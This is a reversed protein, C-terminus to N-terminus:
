NSEFLDLQIRSLSEGRLMKVEIIEKIALSFIQNVLSCVREDKKKICDNLYERYKEVSEEKAEVVFQAKTKRDQISTYPNGLASGRGIYFVNKHKYSHKKHIVKIM